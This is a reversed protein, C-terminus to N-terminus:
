FGPVNLETLGFRYLLEVLDRHPNGSRDGRRGPSSTRTMAVKTEFAKIKASRVM